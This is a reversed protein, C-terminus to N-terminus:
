SASVAEQNPTDPFFDHYSRVFEGLKRPDGVAEELKKICGDPWAGVTDKDFEYWKEFLHFFNTRLLQSNSGNSLAATMRQFNKDTGCLRWFIRLLARVSGGNAIDAPGEVFHPYSSKKAIFNQIALRLSVHMGEITFSVTDLRSRETWEVIEEPTVESDHCFISFIHQANKTRDQRNKMLKWIEYNEKRWNIELIKRKEQALRVCRIKIETSANKDALAATLRAVGYDRDEDRGSRPFEEELAARALHFNIRADENAGAALEALAKTTQLCPYNAMEKAFSKSKSSDTWAKTHQELITPILEPRQLKAMASGFATYFPWKPLHEQGKDPNQAGFIHRFFAHALTPHRFVIQPDRQQDIGLGLFEGDLLEGIRFLEEIQATILDDRLDLERIMEAITSRRLDTIVDNTIVKMFNVFTSAALAGLQNKERVFDNVVTKIRADLFEGRTAQWQACWLSGTGGDLGNLFLREIDARENFPSAKFAHIADIFPAAAHKPLARLWEEDVKFGNALDRQQKVKRSQVSLLLTAGRNGDRRLWAPPPKTLGTEDLVILPQAALQLGDTFATDHLTDDTRLSYVPRGQDLWAKAFQRALVTKGEAVPGQVILIPFTQSRKFLSEIRDPHQVAVHAAPWWGVDDAGKLFRIAQEGREPELPPAFDADTIQRWLAPGAENSTPPNHGVQAHVVAKSDSGTEDDFRPFDTLIAKILAHRAAIGDASVWWNRLTNFVDQPLKPIATPEIDDM